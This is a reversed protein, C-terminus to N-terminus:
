RHVEDRVEMEKKTNTKEVSAYAACGKSHQLKAKAKSLPLQAGASWLPREAKVCACAEWARQIM